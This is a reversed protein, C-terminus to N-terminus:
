ASRANTWSALSVTVLTTMWLKRSPEFEVDAVVVEVNRGVTTTAAPRTADDIDIARPDSFNSACVSVSAAGMVLRANSSRNLRSMRTSLADMLSTVRPAFSGAQGAETRAHREDIQAERQGPPERPGAPIEQAAGLERELLGLRRIDLRDDEVGGPLVLRDGVCPAGGGVRRRESVEAVEMRALHEHGRGHEGGGPQQRDRRDGREDAQAARREDAQARVVADARLSDGAPEHFGADALYQDDVVV